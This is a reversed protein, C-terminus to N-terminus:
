GNKGKKLAGIMKQARVEIEKIPSGPMQKQLIQVYRQFLASNSLKSDVPRNDDLIMQHKNATMVQRPTPLLEKDKRIKLETQFVAGNVHLWQVLLDKAIIAERIEDTTMETVAKATQNFLELHRALAPDAKKLTEILKENPVSSTM